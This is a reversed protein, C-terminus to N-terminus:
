GAGPSPPTSWPIVYFMVSAFHCLGGALVFGHWVAHHFRLNKWLYFVTGCTYFLGGAVLWFVGGRPLHHVLPHIAIVAIWGMGIYILTSLLKFRGAFFIKFVIGIVTLGWIVGFLSWGWAGRLTVLLFPTYTGAILLYIASHDLIKMVAKARPDTLSHYLTSATFLLVLTSGYIASTVVHWVTGHLASGAVLVALAALGLILGIGHTVSNAIEEALTSVASHRNDTM